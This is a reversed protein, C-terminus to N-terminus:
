RDGDNNIKQVQVLLKSNAEPITEGTATTPQLASQENLKAFSPTFGKHQKIKTNVARNQTVTKTQSARSVGPCIIQCQAVSDTSRKDAVNSVSSFENQTQTSKSMTVPKGAFKDAWNRRWLKQGSSWQQCLKLLCNEDNLVPLYDQQSFDCLQSLEKAAKTAPYNGRRM